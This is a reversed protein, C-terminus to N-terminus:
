GKATDMVALYPVTIYVNTAHIMLTAIDTCLM